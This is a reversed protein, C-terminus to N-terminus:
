EGCHTRARFGILCHSGSAPKVHINILREHACVSLRGPSAAQICTDTLPSGTFMGVNM